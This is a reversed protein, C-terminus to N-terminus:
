QAFREIVLAGLTAGGRSLRDAALWFGVGDPFHRVRGVLSDDRTLADLAPFAPDRMLRLGPASELRDEAGQIDPPDALWLQVMAGEASFTPVMVRALRIGPPPHGERRSLGARLDAEMAEDALRPDSGPLGLQPILDFALNASFCHAEIDRGTFVAQCQASLEDMGPKDFRAASEYSSISASVVGFPQFADIAAVLSITLGAPVRYIEGLMLPDPTSAELSPWLRHAELFSDTLDLVPRGMIQASAEALKVLTPDTSVLVVLAASELVAEDVLDLDTDIFETRTVAKVPLEPLRLELSERLAGGLSSHAGLLVIPDPM